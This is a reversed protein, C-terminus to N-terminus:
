VSLVRMIHAPASCRHVPKKGDPKTSSLFQKDLNNAYMTNRLGMLEIQIKTGVIEPTKSKPDIQKADQTSTIGPDPVNQVRHHFPYLDYVVSLLVLVKQITLLVKLRKNVVM